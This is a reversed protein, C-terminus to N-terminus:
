CMGILTEKNIEYNNNEKHSGINVLHTEIGKKKADEIVWKAAQKANGTGSFYHIVLKKFQNNYSALMTIILQTFKTFFTFHKSHGYVFGVSLKTIVVSDYSRFEM